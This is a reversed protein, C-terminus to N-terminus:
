APTGDLKVNQGEGVPWGPKDADRRKNEYPARMKGAPADEAETSDPDPDPDPDPKEDPRPKPQEDEDPEPESLITLEGLAAYRTARSPDMDYEEGAGYMDDGIYRSVNMRVRSTAPAHKRAM